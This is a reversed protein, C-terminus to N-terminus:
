VKPFLGVVEAAVEADVWLGLMKGLVKIMRWGEVVEAGAQVEKATGALEAVATMGAVEVVATMGAVEM